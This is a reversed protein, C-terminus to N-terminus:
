IISWLMPMLACLKCTPLVLTEFDRLRPGAFFAQTLTSFTLNWLLNPVLHCSAANAMVLVQIREAVILVDITHKSKCKIFIEGTEM